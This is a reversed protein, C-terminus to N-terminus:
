EAAPIARHRNFRQRFVDWSGALEINIALSANLLRLSDYDLPAGTAYDTASVVQAHEVDYVVLVNGHPRAPTVHEWVFSVTDPPDDPIFLEVRGHEDLRAVMEPSPPSVPWDDDDPTSRTGPPLARLFAAALALAV